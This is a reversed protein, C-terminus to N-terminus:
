DDLDATRGYLDREYTVSADPPLSLKAERLFRFSAYPEVESKDAPKRRAEVVDILSSAVDDQQEEPVARLRQILQRMLTTM